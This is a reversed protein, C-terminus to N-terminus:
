FCVSGCLEMKIVFKNEYPKLKQSFHMACIQFQNMNVADIKGIHRRVFSEFDNNVHWIPCKTWIDDPCITSSQM